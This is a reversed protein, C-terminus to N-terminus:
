DSEEIVAVPGEWAVRTWEGRSELTISSPYHAEMRRSGDGTRVWAECPQSPSAGKVWLNILRGSGDEALHVFPRAGGATTVGVCDRFTGRLLYRALRSRLSSFGRLLPSLYDDDLSPLSVDLAKGQCFTLCAQNATSTPGTILLHPYVYPFVEPRPTDIGAGDAEDASQNVDYFQSFREHCGEVWIFFDPDIARAADRIEALMLDYGPLFNASPVPHGHSTDTCFCADASSIQDIQVAHAGYEGVMRCIERVMQDRYPKSMPCCVEFRPTTGYDEIQPKGDRGVSVSRDGGDRYFKSAPDILRGNTYLVARMGMARIEDMAARLDQPTGLAPCPEYNPYMTDHGDGSWGAVHLVPLGMDQARAALGPLDAFRYKPERGEFKMILQVWGHFGDVMWRPHRPRAFAERMHSAYLDAAAHWDGPVSAVACEPSTWTEGACPHHDVSLVFHHTRNGARFSMTEDGTSYAALYLCHGPTHLALFQMDMISPYMFVAQSGDVPSFHYWPHNKDRTCWRQIADRPQSIEGVWGAPVFLKEGHDIRDWQVYPFEVRDVAMGAAEISIRGIIESLEQRLTVTATLGSAAACSSFRHTVTDAAFDVTHEAFDEPTVAHDDPSEASEDLLLRFLPSTDWFTLDLDNRLMTVTATASM